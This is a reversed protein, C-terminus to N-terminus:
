GNAQIVEVNEVQMRVPTQRGLIAMLVVVRQDASSHVLGELGAFASARDTVRVRQGTQPRRSAPNGATHRAEQERIADILTQPVQAYQYGFRVVAQIGRTSRVPAISQSAQSPRFFLYRPFMPEVRGYLPLYTEYAQRLLHEQAHAERRPETYALYWRTSPAAGGAEHQM